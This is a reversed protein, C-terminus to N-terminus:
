REQVFPNIYELDYRSRASSAAFRSDRTWVRIYENQKVPINQGNLYPGGSGPVVNGSVNVIWAELAPGNAATTFAVNGTGSALWFDVDGVTEIAGSDFAVLTPATAPSNNAPETSDGFADGYVFLSVNVTTGSDNRVRVFFEGTVSTGRQIVCSGRCTVSQTISQSDVGQDAIAASQIGFRGSSFRSRDNASLIVNQYSQPLVELEIDRDLEVYVLDSASAAGPAVRFVQSQGPNIAISGGGPIVSSVNPFVTATVSITNSPPGPPTVTINCAALVVAIVIVASLSLVRKM